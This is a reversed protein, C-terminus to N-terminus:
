IYIYIYIYISLIYIYLIYIYVYYPDYIMLINFSHGFRSVKAELGPDVSGHFGWQNELAGPLLLRGRDQGALM